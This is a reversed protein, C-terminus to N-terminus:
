LDLRCRPPRKMDMTLIRSWGRSRLWLRLVGMRRWRKRSSGLRNNSNIRHQRPLKVRQRDARHLLFPLWRSHSLAQPPPYIIKNPPPSETRIFHPGLDRPQYAPLTTLAPLLSNITKWVIPSSISPNTLPPRIVHDVVVPPQLHDFTLHHVHLLLTTSVLHQLPPHHSPAHDTNCPMALSRRHLHFPLVLFFVLYPPLIFTLWRTDLYRTNTFRPSNRRLGFIRSIFLFDLSSCHSIYPSRRNDIM